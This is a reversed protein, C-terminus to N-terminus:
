TEANIERKFFGNHLAVMEGYQNEKHNVKLERCEAESLGETGIKLADALNAYYYGHYYKKAYASNSMMELGPGSDLWWRHKVKGNSQDFFAMKYWQFPSGKRNGEGGGYIKLGKAIGLDEMVGGDGSGITGLQEGGNINGQNDYFRQERMSWREETSHYKRIVEPTNAGHIESWNGKELYKYVKSGLNGVFNIMIRENPVGVEHLAHMIEDYFPEMKGRRFAMPENIIVYFVKPNDIARALSKAFLKAFMVTPQHTMFDQHNPTTQYWVGGVKIGTNKSPHWFTHNYRPDRGGKIGSFLVIATTLDRKHLEYLRKKIEDLYVPNLEIFQPVGYEDPEILRIQYKGSSNRKIPVFSNEAYWDDEMCYAFFKIGNVLKAMEDCIKKWLEFTFYPELWKMVLNEYGHSWWLIKKILWVPFKCINIGPEPPPPQPEPELGCLACSCTPAPNWPDFTKTEVNQCHPSAQCEAPNDLCINKNYEYRDCKAARWLWGKTKAALPCFINRRFNWFSMM